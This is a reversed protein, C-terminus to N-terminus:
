KKVTATQQATVAAGASDTGRATIRLSGRKFKGKVRIKVTKTGSLSAVAARGVLKPKSAKGTSLAVQLNKVPASATLKLSISKAKRVKKASVKPKAITLKTTSAPAPAPQSPGPAPAPQPQGPAPQGPQGPQGPQPAPAAGGAAPTLTVTATYTWTPAPATPGVYDSGFIRILYAGAKPNKLKAKVTGPDTASTQTIKGDPDEIEVTQSFGEEDVVSDVMLQTGPDKVTLEYQQCVPEECNDKSTGQEQMAIEYAGTPETISGSFSTTPKAASVEGSAPDTAAVAVGTAALALLSLPLAIRLTM